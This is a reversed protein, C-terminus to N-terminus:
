QLGVRYKHVMRAPEYSHKSQRLQELGLDQELNMFSYSGKLVTAFEQYIYQYMGKLHKCGKAFHVVYMDKTLPEGIIFGCAQGDVYFIQGSLKLEEFWELAEKCAEFDTEIDGNQELESQWFSLIGLADQSNEKGLIVVKVIHKELLQKVLNRKKSLSHGQYTSMRKTSYIYDSDSELYEIKFVASNFHPIWEEPIPYFFDVQNLLSKLIEESLNYLPFTPMLFSDGKRTIGKIFLDGDQFLSYHHLQRFLFLNAFTYESIELDLQELKKSILEQDKLEL